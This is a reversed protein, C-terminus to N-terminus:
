RRVRLVPLEIRAKTSDVAATGAAEAQEVQAKNPATTGGFNVKVTNAAQGDVTLVVDVEGRGGAERPVEVNVQDLGTYTGQAGAYLVPAAVGGLRVKVSGPHKVHRPGTGFLLLFLRDGPDTFEVPTSVFRKAQTDYRAVPEYTRTGDAKVRLTVAAAVGRGDSNAAFLGPGVALVRIAGASVREGSRRVTVTAAGPSTGPPILYNVQGPSVFFLPAAREVGAGDRVLVRTGALETPLAATTAVATDGSLGRGFASVISESPLGKEVYSAASVTAVAEEAAGLPLSTAADNGSGDHVTVRVKSVEPLDSAGTFKQTVSFAQGHVLNADHIARGVEVGLPSGVEGGGADLFQYQVLALDQDPDFVTFEATFEDGAKTLTVLPARRPDLPHTLRAARSVRAELDLGM